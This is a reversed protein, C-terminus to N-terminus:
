SLFTWDTWPWVTRYRVGGGIRTPTMAGCALAVIRRRAGHMAATNCRAYMTTMAATLVKRMSSSSLRNGLIAWPMVDLRARGAVASPRMIM